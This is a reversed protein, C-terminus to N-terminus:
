YTYRTPSPHATSCARNRRDAKPVRLFMDGTIKGVGNWFNAGQELAAKMAKAADEYKM